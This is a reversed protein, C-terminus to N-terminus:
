LEIGYRMKSLLHASFMFMTAVVLDGRDFADAAADFRETVFEGDDIETPTFERLFKARAKQIDAISM